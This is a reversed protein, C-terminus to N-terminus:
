PVKVCEIILSYALVASTAWGQSSALIKGDVGTGANNTLGGFHHYKMKGRGTLQEIRKQTTANWLLNIALTDEINFSIQDIRLKTALQGTANDIASLKAPDLIVLGGASVTLTLGTNTATANASLTAATASEVSLVYTGTPIGTGSIFQGPLLVTNSAFTISPSGTTTAASTLSTSAGFDSTDLVGELKVVVNRPGDVLLQTSLTNAM